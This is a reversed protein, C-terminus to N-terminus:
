VYDIEVTGSDLDTVAVGNPMHKAGLLKGDGYVRESVFNAGPAINNYVVDTNDVRDAIQCLHGATTGGRWLVRSIFLPITIEDAQATLVFKKSNSQHTVAM